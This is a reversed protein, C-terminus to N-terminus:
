REYLVWAVELHRQQINPRSLVGTKQTPPVFKASEFSFDHSDRYGIVTLKAFNGDSTQVGIVAGPNLSSRPIPETTYPLKRLDAASVKEFPVGLVLAVKAGGKPVLNQVHPPRGEPGRRVQEWFLDVRTKGDQRDTEIDWIYTGLLVTCLRLRTGPPRSGTAM